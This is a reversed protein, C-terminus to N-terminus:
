DTRGGHKTPVTLGLMQASTETSGTETSPTRVMLRVGPMASGHISGLGLASWDMVAQNVATDKQLYSVAVRMARRELRQAMESYLTGAGVREAVAAVLFQNLSTGEREALQVARRHLSRPLRLAVRGRYEQSDSPEPIRQNANLTAEIWGEAAVELNGLAEDATDGETVCGPFELIEATYGGFEEDPTLIRAYPKKLYDRVNDSNGDM